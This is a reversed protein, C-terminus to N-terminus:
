SDILFNALKKRPLIEQDKQLRIPNSKTEKKLMMITLKRLKSRKEGAPHIQKCVIGTNPM